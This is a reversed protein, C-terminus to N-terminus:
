LLYFSIYQHLIFTLYMKTEVDIGCFNSLIDSVEAASPVLYM